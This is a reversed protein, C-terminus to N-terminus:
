SVEEKSITNNKFNYKKRKMNYYDLASDYAIAADIDSNFRGLIITKSIGDKTVKIKAQWKGNRISVGIFGSKSKNNESRIYLYEDVDQYDFCDPFNLLAFEKYYKRALQDYRKAALIESTFYNRICKRKGLSLSSIWLQFEKSWYVGKFKSTGVKLKRKNILNLNYNCIRLNSRQLNFKNRDKHDIIVKKDTINLILRHALQVFRIQSETKYAHVYGTNKDLYFRYKNLWDYDADDVIIFKDKYKGRLYINKSM